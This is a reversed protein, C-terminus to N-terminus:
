FRPRAFNRRRLGLVGVGYYLWNNTLQTPHYKIKKYVFFLLFILVAGLLVLYWNEGMAKFLIDFTNDNERFFHTEEFTIRKFAYRFYVIDSLNLVVLGISNIIGYIWFLAKQYGIKQRFRFPLMSLVIFPANLFFISATAFKLSGALLMPIESWSLTGLLMRNYLYFAVQTVLVCGYLPLLRLLLVTFDNQLIKKM